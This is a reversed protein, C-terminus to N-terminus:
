NGEILAPLLSMAREYQKLANGDNSLMGDFFTAFTVFNADVLSNRLKEENTFKENGNILNITLLLMVLSHRFIFTNVFEERSKPDKIPLPYASDLSIGGNIMSLVLSYIDDRTSRNYPPGNRFSQIRTAGLESVLGQAALISIRAALRMNELETKAKFSLDELYKLEPGGGAKARELAQVYEHFDKTQGSHVLRRQLGAPSGKMRAAHRTSKLILIQQPFSAVIEMNQFLTSLKSSGLSEISTYSTLVAMNSSDRSLFDRLEPSRLFNSDVIKRM